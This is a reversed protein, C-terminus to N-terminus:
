NSSLFHEIGESKALDLDLIWLRKMLVLMRCIGDHGTSPRIRGKQCFGYVTELDM